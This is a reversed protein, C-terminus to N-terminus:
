RPPAALARRVEDAYSDMAEMEGPQVLRFGGLRKDEFYLRGEPTAGFALLTRRILEAQASQRANLMYVRGLLPTSEILFHLKARIDPALGDLNATSILGVTQDDALMLQAISDAASVFHLQSDPINHESLWHQGWATVLSTRGVGVIASHALDMPTRILSTNTIAFGAKFLTQYTLLPQYGADTQCLRAQHGTTIALDYDQNLTRRAFETFDPATQIELPVGLGQELAQRIPLFESILARPSTHPAIGIRFPTPPLVPALDASVLAAPTALAAALLPLLARRKMSNGGTM